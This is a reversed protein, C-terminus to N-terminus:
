ELDPESCEDEERARKVGRLSAEAERADKWGDATAVFAQHYARTWGHKPANATSGKRHVMFGGTDALPPADTTGLLGKDFLAAEPIEWVDVHGERALTSKEDPIVIVYVDNDGLKYTNLRLKVGTEDHGCDTELLVNLGTQNKLKKPTKFQYTTKRGNPNTWDHLVELDVKTNQGEPYVIVTGDRLLRLNREDNRMAEPMELWPVQGGHKCRMWALVGAREVAHKQGVRADAAEVTWTRLATAHGEVVKACERLLEVVLGDLNIPLTTGDAPVPLITGTDKEKTVKMNVTRHDDLVKGHVVWVRDLDAEVSCVVLADTYTLVDDFQWYTRDKKDTAMKATSKHQWALWQGAPMDATRFLADAWCGDPCIRVRVRRNTVRHVHDRLRLLERRELASCHDNRAKGAARRPANTARRQRKQARQAEFGNHANACAVAAADARLADAWTHSYIDMTEARGPMNPLTTHFYAKADCWLTRSSTAFQTEYDHKHEPNSKMEAKHVVNEDRWRQMEEPTRGPRRTGPPGMIAVRLADWERLTRARREQLETDVEDSDSDSESESEDSDSENLLRAYEAYCAAVLARQRVVRIRDALTVVHRPTKTNTLM